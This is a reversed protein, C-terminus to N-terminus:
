TYDESIEKFKLEFELQKLEENWRGSYGGRVLGQELLKLPIGMVRNRKKPLRRVRFASHSAGAVRIAVFTGAQHVTAYGSRLHDSAPINFMVQRGMVNMSPEPRKPSYKHPVQTWADGPPFNPLDAM